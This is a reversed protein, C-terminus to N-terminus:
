QSVNPLQAQPMSHQRAELQQPDLAPAFFPCSRRLCHGALLYPSRSVIPWHGTPNSPGAHPALMLQMPLQVPHNRFPKLAAPQAHSERVPPQLRYLKRTLIWATSHRRFSPSRFFLHRSIARLVAAAIIGRHTTPSRVVAPCSPQLM